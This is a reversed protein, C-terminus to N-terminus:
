RFAGHKAVLNLPLRIWSHLSHTTFTRPTDQLAESALTTALITDTGEVYDHGKPTHKSKGKFETSWKGENATRKM